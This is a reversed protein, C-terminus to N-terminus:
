PRLLAREIAAALDGRTALTEPAGGGAPHLTSPFRDPGSRESLDNHVVFDAGSHAFLDRIAAEPAAGTTLKFAVVRLSPNGSRARLTDVIMALTRGDVRATNEGSFGEVGGLSM